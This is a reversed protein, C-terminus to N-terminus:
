ARRVSLRPLLKQLIYDDDDMKLRVNVNFKIQNQCPKWSCFTCFRKEYLAIIVDSLCKSVLM